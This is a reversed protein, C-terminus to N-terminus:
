RPGAKESRTVDSRTFLALQTPPGVEPDDPGVPEFRVGYGHAGAVRGAWDRFEARTWEFRHDSHRTAGEPLEYRVNYEVNPTTVLVAGPRASAFVHHELAGLRPPDIHEIV